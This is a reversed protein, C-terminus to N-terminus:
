LVFINLATAISREANRLMWRVIDDTKGNQWGSRRGWKVRLRRKKGNKATWSYLSLSLSLSVRCVCMCATVKRSDISQIPKARGFTYYSYLQLIYNWRAIAIRSVSTHWSIIWKKEKKIRKEKQRRVIWRSETRWILHRVSIFKEGASVRWKEKGVDRIRAWVCVCACVVYVCARTGNCVCLCM